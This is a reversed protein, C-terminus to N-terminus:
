LKSRKKMGVPKTNRGILKRAERQERSRKMEAAITELSRRIRELEAANKEEFREELILNSGLHVNAQWTEKINLRKRVVHTVGTSDRCTGELSVTEFVETIENLMQAGNGGLDTGFFRRSQGPAL